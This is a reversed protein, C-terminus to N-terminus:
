VHWRKLRVQQLLQIWVVVIFRQCGGGAPMDHNEIEIESKQNEITQLVGMYM